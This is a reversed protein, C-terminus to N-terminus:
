QVTDFWTLRRVNCRIDSYSVDELCIPCREEKKAEECESYVGTPLQAIQSPPLGGL